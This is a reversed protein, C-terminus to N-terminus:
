QTRGRCADLLRNVRDAMGDRMGDVREPCRPPGFHRMALRRLRDHEPPNMGLFSPVPTGTGKGLRPDHLLPAIQRYTSVVYGGSEERCVPTRRLQEYLPFPNARNAYDLVQQLLSPQSM